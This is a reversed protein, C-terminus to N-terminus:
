ATSPRAPRWRRTRTATARTTWTWTSATRAPSPATPRRRATMMSFSARSSAKARLVPTKSTTSSSMRLPRWPSALAALIRFLSLLPQNSAILYPQVSKKPWGRTQGGCKRNSGQSSRVSHHAVHCAAVYMSAGLGLRHVSFTPKGTIAKTCDIWTSARNTTNWLMELSDILQRRQAKTVMTINYRTQEKSPYHM